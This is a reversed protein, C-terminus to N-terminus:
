DLSIMSQIKERWTPRRVPFMREIKSLPPYFIWERWSYAFLSGKSSRTYTVALLCTFAVLFKPIWAMEKHLILYFASTFAVLMAFVACDLTFLGVRFSSPLRKIFHGDSYRSTVIFLFTLISKTACLMAVVDSVLFVTFWRSKLLSPMGTDNNNGGPLTIAASFAVTAILTSILIWSNSTEKMWREGDKLLPRHEKSFVERPQQRKNNKMKRYSLPVVRKVEQMLLYSYRTLYFLFISMLPLSPPPINRQETRVTFWLIERELQFAAGSVVKLRRPPALKGALHLINNGDNDVSTALMEKLYDIQLILSFVREQRHLVATHLITHNNRDVSLLLDPDSSAIIDILEVNGEKAAEHLISFPKEILETVKDQRLTQIEAWLKEALLLVGREQSKRELIHIRVPYIVNSLTKKGTKTPVYVPQVLHHLATGEENSMKALSENMNLIALAVNITFFVIMGYMRSRITAILLDFWEDRSLDEECAYERLYIVMNKKGFFAAIYLPTKDDKGRMTVLSPNKMRMVDAIEVIGSEAAYCFATRGQKNRLLLDNESMLKVLELVFETHKSAAAVHLAGDDNMTIKARALNPDEQLLLDAAKWDGKLAAIYMEKHCEPRTVTTTNVTSTPTQFDSDEEVVPVAAISPLSSGGGKNIDISVENNERDM